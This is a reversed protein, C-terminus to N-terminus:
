EKERMRNKRGGERGVDCKEEDQEIKRQSVRLKREEVNRNPAEIRKKLSIWRQIMRLGFVLLFICIKRAYKETIQKM